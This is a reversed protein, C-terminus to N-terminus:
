QEAIRREQKSHRCLKQAMLDELQKKQMQEQAIQQNLILKRRQLERDKKSADEEVKQHRISEVYKRTELMSLKVNPLRKSLAKVHEFPDQKAKFLYEKIDLENTENLSSISDISELNLDDVQEPHSIDRKAEFNEVDNLFIQAMRAKKDKLMMEEKIQKELIKKKQIEEMKRAAEDRERQARKQEEMGYPNESIKKKLSPKNYIKVPTPKLIIEDKPEVKRVLNKKSLKAILLEKFFLHEKDEFNQRHLDNIQIPNNYFEGTPSSPYSIYKLDRQGIGRESSEKQGIGRERPLNGNIELRKVASKIQYLWKTASGSKGQILEYADNATMVLGLCERLKKEIWCYNIISSNDLCLGDLGDLCKLKLLLEGFLYGNKFSSDLNEPSINKIDLEQLWQSLLISM